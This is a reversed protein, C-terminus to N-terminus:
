EERLARVPDITAARHAPLGAALLGTLLFLVIATGIVWPDGFPIRFLLSRFVTIIALAGALGAILGGGIM